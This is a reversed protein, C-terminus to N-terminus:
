SQARAEKVAADMRERWRWAAEWEDQEAAAPDFRGADFDVYVEKFREESYDPNPRNYQVENEKRWDDLARRMQAVRQPHDASVDEQESIDIGLNYLEVLEEDYFEVLLWDGDRMAGNPRSGQNTYHPFHWFLPREPFEDTGLLGGAFSVGDFTPASRLGVVANGTTASEADTPAGEGRGTAVLDLLTPIWDVNNVPADVVRGAEIHGPWRIILPVRNGGEYVFGKGARFPTNHTVRKHPGEPVHLGGNDSTFVVITEEAIGLEDLRKMIVGVTDDLTEILAAYVPEFADKNKDILHQKATYPIHPTHHGLYLAFPKAPDAEIFDLAAQTLEYEGKGGETESPETNAQASYFHDFGHELPGFGKGGVHWKGVLGTRYGLESFYKPFSKVELPLNMTIEPHLVRQTVCDPRGALFTTLHLRAPNLGTLIGARSPSCIPQCAYSSTFRTGQDALRDLNPTNHDERGYCRLDNIGLDDCLIFLINPRSMGLLLALPRHHSAVSHWMRPRCGM